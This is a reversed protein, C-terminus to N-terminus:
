SKRGEEGYLIALALKKIWTPVSKLFSLSVSKWSAVRNKLLEEASVEFRYEVPCMLWWTARLLLQHAVGINRVAEKRLEIEGLAFVQTMSYLSSSSLGASYGDSYGTLLYDGTVTTLTDAESIQVLYDLMAYDLRNFLLACTYAWEKTSFHYQEKSITSLGLKVVTFSVPVTLSTSVIWGGRAKFYRDIEENTPHGQATPDPVGSRRYYDRLEQDTPYHM